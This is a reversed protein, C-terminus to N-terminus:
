PKKKDEAQSAVVLQELTLGGGLKHHITEKMGLRVKALFIAASANKESLRLINAGIKAKVKAIGTDLENRFYRRLTVPSIPRGTRPNKIGTAIEDQPIGLGVMVEVLLRQEGTPRLDEPRGRSRKKKPRAKPKAKSKSM